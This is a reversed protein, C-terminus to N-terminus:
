GIDDCVPSDNLSFRGRQFRTYYLFRVRIFRVRTFDISLDLRLIAVFRPTTFFHFAYIRKEQIPHPYLEGRLPRHLSLGNFFWLATDTNPTFGCDCQIWTAM